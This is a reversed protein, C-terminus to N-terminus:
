SISVGKVGAMGKLLRLLDEISTTAHLQIDIAVVEHDENEQLSVLDTKIKKQKFWDLMSVTNGNVLTLQLHYNKNMLRFTLQHFVELVLLTMVSGYIGLEYMGIAATVWIDAATTLGVINQNRVLINGAGIFGVGTVVQAAIRSPDLGVHDLSLVDAFGYKSVIMFLASGMGILVHTRLGAGKGRMQREMGIAGCAIAALILRIIFEATM